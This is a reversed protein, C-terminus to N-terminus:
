DPSNQLRYLSHRGRINARIGPTVASSLSWRLPAAIPIYGAYRMIAEEATGIAAIRAASDPAEDIKALLASTAPDCVLGRGCGLRRLIWAPDSSPAVEDILRLDAQASIPVRQTDIGIAGFDARIRAFVISAGPGIPLAIRLIPRSGGHRQRWDAIIATARRIREARSFDLWAPYVPQVAGAAQNRRSRLAVRGTWGPSGLAAVLATRDIAMNVADRALGDARVGNDSVIALGFLGEVPDIVVSQQNIGAATVFPWGEFRGGLVAAVEGQDFQTVASLTSAGWFMAIPEPKDASGDEGGAVMAMMPVPTLTTTGGSWSAKLPGWGHGNRMLAMDPQALLDLLDPQARTLRIEIVKATMARVDRVSRFEGRLMPRLRSSNLRRRLLEAVDIARVPRGDNWRAQRLRFIYSKGTDIVTWREALGAEVQGDSAYSVLGQATADLLLRDPLTQATTARDTNRHLDGIAAIRVPGSASFWGCGSLAFPLICAVMVAALRCAIKWIQVPASPPVRVRVAQPLRIKLGSRRGIGGRGRM